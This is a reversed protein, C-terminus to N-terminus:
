VSVGQPAENIRSFVLVDERRSWGHRAAAAWFALGCSNEALVFVHVKEIESDALGKLARHLLESSIGRGRFSDAVALHYLFGRRGDHGCLVTGVLKGDSFCSWSLGPNRSLFRSLPGPGDASSLGLGPMEQWFQRAAEIDSDALPRFIM